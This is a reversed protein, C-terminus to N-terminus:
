NKLLSDPLTKIFAQIEDRIRRYHQLAEEQTKATAALKPPDKFSHHVIKGKGIWVPCHEYPDDCVTVVFDFPIDRLTDVQKSTHSSIDIGIEKMVKVAQPNLRHPATGASYAEIQSSKFSRALGEAMQSRCSNGTCLFLVKLRKAAPQM